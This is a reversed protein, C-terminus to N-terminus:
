DTSSPEVGLVDESEIQVRALGTVVIRGQIGEIVPDLFAEASHGADAGDRSGGGREASTEKSV